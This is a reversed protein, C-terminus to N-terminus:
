LTVIQLVGQPSSSSAGRDERLQATPLEDPTLTSAGPIHREIIFKPM